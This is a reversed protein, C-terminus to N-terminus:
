SHSWQPLDSVHLMKWTQFYWIQSIQMLGVDKWCPFVSKSNTEFQQPEVTSARICAGMLKVMHHQNYEVYIEVVYKIAILNGM